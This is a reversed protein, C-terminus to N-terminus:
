RGDSLHWPRANSPARVIANVVIVWTFYCPVDFNVLITTMVFRLRLWDAVRFCFFRYSACHGFAVALSGKTNLRRIVNPQALTAVCLFLVPVPTGRRASNFIDLIAEMTFRVEQVSSACCIQVSCHMGGTRAFATSLPTWVFHIGSIPCPRCSCIEWWKGILLYYHISSSPFLLDPIREEDDKLLTPSKDTFQRHNPPM